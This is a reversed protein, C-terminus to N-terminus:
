IILGTIVGSPMGVWDLDFTRFEVGTQWSSEGALTGSIYDVTFGNSEFDVIFVDSYQKADTNGAKVTFPGDLGFGIVRSDNQFIGAGVSDGILNAHSASSLLILLAGILTVRM